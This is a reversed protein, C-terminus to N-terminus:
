LFKAHSPIPRGEEKYLTNGSMLTSDQDSYQRSEMERKVRRSGRKEKLELICGLSSGLYSLRLSAGVIWAGCERRLEESVNLLNQLTWSSSGTM